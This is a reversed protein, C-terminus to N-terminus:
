GKKPGKWKIGFDESTAAYVLFDNWQGNTFLRKRSLCEKKLGIATCVKLSPRNKPNIAAEVRHLNLDKFAIKLVAEGAEKAFGKNWHNNYLFYGLYANQFVNRTIDM